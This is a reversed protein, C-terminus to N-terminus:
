VKVVLDDLIDFIPDEFPRQSSNIKLIANDFDKNIKNFPWMFYYFSGKFQDIFGSAHQNLIPNFNLRKGLANIVYLSVFYARREFYMRFFSPIPALMLLFLLAIPWSIFFLPISLLAFIQPSMYLIPFLINKNYDKLHMLEHLFIFAISVPRIKVFDRSPFYITNGITTTYTTMFEKNFLLLFGIIKMLISENKYKIQLKPFYKQASSIAEEFSM